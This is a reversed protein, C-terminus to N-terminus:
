MMELLKGVEEDHEAVLRLARAPEAEAHGRERAEHGLHAVARRSVAERVLVEDHIETAGEGRRQDTGGARLVEHAEPVPEEQRFRAAVAAAREGAEVAVVRVLDVGGIQLEGLTARRSPTFIPGM